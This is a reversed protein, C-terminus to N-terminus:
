ADARHTIHGRSMTLYPRMAALAEPQITFPDDDLVVLDARGGPVLQNIGSTSARLAQGVSLTEDPQWAGDASGPERGTVAVSIALWPDLPAVPADSGFVLRIRAAAMSALAHVHRPRETWVEAFGLRDAIIQAPQVSATLGLDAMRALDGDHMVTAHEVTGHAGTEAFCELVRAVTADGIAHVAVEIGSREALSMLRSLEAASIDAMGHPDIGPAPRRYSETCWATRASVSGDAIVKLPGATLWQDDDLLAGTALGTAVWDDVTDPWCAIRVQLRQDPSAARNRWADIRHGGTQMDVIGVVGRAAAESQADILARSRAARDVEDLRDELAFADQERLVGSSATGTVRDRFGWQQLGRSNVWVSHLDNMYVAVPHNGSIADLERTDPRDPWQSDRAGVAILAAGAPLQTISAALRSLTDNASVCGSVDLRTKSAAWLDFHVHCDWLGPMVIRGELDIVEDDPAIMAPGGRRVQNGSVLVDHPLGVRGTTLDLLRAHRFMM